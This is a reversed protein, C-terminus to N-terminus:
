YNLVKKMLDSRLNEKTKEYQDVFSQAHSADYGNAKLEMEVLKVISNVAATTSQELSTAAGMYKRYFYGYSINEGNNKKTTYENKAESILANLRNRSQTEIISFTKTYKDKITAVTVRNKDTSNNSNPSKNSGSSAQGNAASNSENASTDNNDGESSDNSNSQSSGSANTESSTSSSSIIEVNGDKSIKAVQGDPLEVEFEEEIISDVKEDAVDYSKFKLEYILYGGAAVFIVALAILFMKFKKM